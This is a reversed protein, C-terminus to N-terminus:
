PVADREGVGWPVDPPAVRGEGRADERQEDRRREGATSRTPPRSCGAYSGPQRAASPWTTGRAVAIARAGGATRLDEPTREGWGAGCVADADASMLAEAIDKVMVRLLDPSTEELQRRLWSSVDM